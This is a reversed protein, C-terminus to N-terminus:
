IWEVYISIKESPIKLNLQSNKKNTRESRRRRQSIDGPSNWFFKTRADAFLGCNKVYIVFFPFKREDDLFTQAPIRVRNFPNEIVESVSTQRCVPAFSDPCQRYHKCLKRQFKELEDLQKELSLNAQVIRQTLWPTWHPM